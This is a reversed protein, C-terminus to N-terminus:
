KFLPLLYRFFVVTLIVTSNMAIGFATGWIAYKQQRNFTLYFNLWLILALNVMMWGWLSQGAATWETWMRWIQSVNAAELLATTVIPTKNVIVPNRYFKM